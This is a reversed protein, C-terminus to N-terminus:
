WVHVDKLSSLEGHQQLTKLPSRRNSSDFMDELHKLRAGFENTEQRQSNISKVLSKITASDQSMGDLRGGKMANEIKPQLMAMLENVMNLTAREVKVGAEEKANRMGQDLEKVSAFERRVRKMIEEFKPEILNLVDETVDNYNKKMRQAMQSKIREFGVDLSPKLIGMKFKEISSEVRQDIYRLFSGDVLKVIAKEHQEVKRAISDHAFNIRQEQTHMQNNTNSVQRLFGALQDDFGESSQQQHKM